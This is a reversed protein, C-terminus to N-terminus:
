REGGGSNAATRRGRRCRDAPAAERCGWRRGCCGPMSWAPGPLTGNLYATLVEAAPGAIFGIVRVGKAALLGALPRSIAGCLLTQPGFEALREAQAASADGPLAEERCATAQGATIELVRVQRCVDFVPAIRDNWVALALTM